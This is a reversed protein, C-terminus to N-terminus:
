GYMVNLLKEVNKSNSFEEELIEKRLALDIETFDSKMLRNLQERMDQPTDAITCLQELGTNEVMPTNVLCFKGNFLASLLKLKIGTPQFTPLVNVHADAILQHIQKTTLDSLLTINHRRQVISRLEVSPKSGAIILTVHSGKFIQNVLYFAAENNEGIALNGHYFAFQGRGAISTVKENSHFAPIYVANDYKSNFYNADNKSIAAVTTAHQLITEYAELKAAENLFYYKKFINTEVRALSKYYDHEINHTRVIIKRNHLKEEHLFFTTHLGEFLIPYKDKLLNNFLEDSARSAVIYPQRKFLQSKAVDRQYYNVHHCLKVLRENASRGYQYCHLHIKIGKEFLAKIKYYVDIVGGYNPPYPVDFSVIHLHKGSYNL